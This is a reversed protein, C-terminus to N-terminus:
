KLITRFQLYLWKMPGIHTQFLESNTRYNAPDFNTIATPAIFRLHVLIHM